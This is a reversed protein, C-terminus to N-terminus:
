EKRLQIRDTPDNKGSTKLDPLQQGLLNRAADTNEHEEDHQDGREKRQIDVDVSWVHLEELAQFGHIASRTQLIDIIYQSSFVLDSHVRSRFWFECAIQTCVARDTHPTQKCATYVECWTM